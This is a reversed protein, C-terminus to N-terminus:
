LVNTSRMLIIKHIKDQSTHAKDNEGDDKNSISICEHYRDTDKMWGERTSLSGLILSVFLVFIPSRITDFAIWNKM